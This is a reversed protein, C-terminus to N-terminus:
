STKKKGIVTDIGQGVDGIDLIHIIGNNESVVLLDKNVKITELVRFPFVSHRPKPDPEGVLQFIDVVKRKTIDFAVIKDNKNTDVPGHHSVFFLYDDKRVLSQLCFGIELLEDIYWSTLKNTESRM